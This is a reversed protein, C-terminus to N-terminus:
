PAPLRAYYVENSGRIGQNWVVHFDGKSDAVLSPLGPKGWNTDAVKRPASWGDGKDIAYVLEADQGQDWGWVMCRVGKNNVEIEPDFHFGGYGRSPEEVPGWAGPHGSRAYVHVPRGGEKHFWTVHDRGDPGFAFHPREGPKGTASLDEPTGFRGDRAEGVYLTTESGGTGIDYGFLMSGDPRREINTHWADAAGDSLATVDSWEGDHRWKAQAKFHATPDLAKGIWIYALDDGQGHAVHGSGIEGGDDPTLPEPTSWATGQFTTLYGRSSFDPKAHDFVVIVTGDDRTVIDPGWNRDRDLGLPLPDAWTAGDASRRHRILDGHDTREYYIAHLADGPGVSIQPRYGGGTGVSIKVFPTWDGLAQIAPGNPAPQDHFAPFGFPDQMKAGSQGPQGGQPGQPPGPPGPPHGGNPGPHGGNPGPQGPNNAVPASPAPTSPAGACALLLLLPLRSM